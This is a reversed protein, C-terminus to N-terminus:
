RLLRRYLSEVNDVVDDWRYERRVMERAAEAKEAKDPDALAKVLGREFDGVDDARFLRGFEGDEGIVEVHCDIDSALTPTGYSMAELLSIPLGELRSPLVFLAANSYLEDLTAGGVFGTFVVRPDNAGIARLEAEYADDHQAGGALVLRLDTDVRRFGELLLEPAKEPVFRGVFLIYSGAELGFDSEIKEAPRVEPIPVGNPIYVVDKRPFEARYHAELSRSVCVTANPFRGSTWEGLRLLRSAAGSWKDRQWDLGHVSVVSKTGPRLRPLLSFVSPGIAHYHVIDPKEVLTTRLTSSASHTLADLHKTAVSGTTVLRMGRYEVIDPQDEGVYSRRCHVTVRHGRQALRAGLEEVHREVGGFTAPAGKTGIMVVDLPGNRM